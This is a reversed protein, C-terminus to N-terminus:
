GTTIHCIIFPRGFFSGRYALMKAFIVSSFKDFYYYSALNWILRIVSTNDFDILNKDLACCQKEPRTYVRKPDCLYGSHDIDTANLQFIKLLDFDAPVVFRMGKSM